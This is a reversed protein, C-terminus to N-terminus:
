YNVSYPYVLKQLLVPLHIVDLSFGPGPRGVFTVTATFASM